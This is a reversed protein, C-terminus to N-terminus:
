AFVDVALSVTVTCIWFGSWADGVKSHKWVKLTGGPHTLDIPATKGANIASKLSEFLTEVAEKYGTEASLGTSTVVLPGSLTIIQAEDLPPEILVGDQGPADEEVTGLDADGGGTCRDPDIAWYDGATESLATFSGVASIEEYRIM